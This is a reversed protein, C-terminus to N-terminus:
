ALTNAKTATIENKLAKGQVWRQFEEVMLAGMKEVERSISGAIHPSLIVNPLNWLKSDEAPPEPYTVDLLATIDSREELAAIMEEERVVAGRATNIFTTHPKMSRIHEGTIMGVTEPLWPTHLSVVDCTRFIEDLSLLTVGIRDAQEQTWFPDYAYVCLEFPKLLQVVQRGIAGLSIIGINSQYMGACNDRKFWTKRQQYEQCAQWYNKLALLIQALTFNAVWEGNVTYASTVQIKRKWFAESTFYRISGAGYFVAKLLPAHDLIEETLPVMGWASFIVDVNNLLSPNEQIDNASFALEEFDASQRIVKRLHPPYIRNFFDPNLIFIAKM